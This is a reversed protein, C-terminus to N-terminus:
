STSRTTRWRRTSNRRRRALAPPDRRHVPRREERPQDATGGSGQAKGTGSRQDPAPEGWNQQRHHPQAHDQGLGPPGFPLMTLAEGRHCAAGIFIERSSARRPRAVYEQLLLACPASWRRKRRHLPRRLCWANRHRPCFRRNPHRAITQDPPAHPSSYGACAEPVTAAVARDKGHWQFEKRGGTRGRRRGPRASRGTTKGRHHTASETAASSDAPGWSGAARFGSSRAVRVSLMLLAMVAHALPGNLWTWQLLPGAWIVTCPGRLPLGALGFWLWCAVRAIGAVSGAKVQQWRSSCQLGAAASAAWDDAVGGGRGVGLLHWPAIRAVVLEPRPALEVQTQLRRVPVAARGDVDRLVAGDYARASAKAISPWGQRAGHHVRVCHM